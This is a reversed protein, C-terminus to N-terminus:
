KQSHAYRISNGNGKLFLFLGKEYLHYADKFSMSREVKWTKTSIFIINYKEVRTGGIFRSNKELIVIFDDDMLIDQLDFEDLEKTYVFHQKHIIRFERQGDMQWVLLEYEWMTETANLSLSALQKRGNFM